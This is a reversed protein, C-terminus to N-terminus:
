GGKYAWYKSCDSAEYCKTKIQLYVSIERNPYINKVRIRM